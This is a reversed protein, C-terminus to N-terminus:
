LKFHLSKANTVSHFGEIGLTSSKGSNKYGTWPLAPDLYDCRNMFVTGVQCHMSFKEALSVDQTYIAATLGYESDAVAKFGEEDDEVKAVAMIPGFSEDTAISMTNDINTILTPEFFTGHEIRKIHGGILLQAGQQCAQQVQKELKEASSSIALPGMQTNSKKPDGMVYNKIIELSKKIFDDYISSHVYIREISCCSQGANYLSGEVLSEVATDLAADAAVYAGDKGGLELQCDIFRNKAAAQYIDQGTAVSGTFIVHDIPGNAILQLSALRDLTLHQLISGNLDHNISTQNFANAFHEGIVFTQESHRLIVTNGALLSTLVGNVAVILPYNWTPCIYVVGKAVREIRKIYGQELDATRPALAQYAHDLLYNFRDIFTSMEGNAESIPKGMSASIDQCISTQNDIFYNLAVKLRNIRENVSIAQWNKQANHISELHSSVQNIDLLPYIGIPDLTYPNYAIYEKM